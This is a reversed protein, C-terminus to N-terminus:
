LTICIGPGPPIFPNPMCGCGSACNQISCASGCPVTTQASAKQAYILNGAVILAAAIAIATLKKKM